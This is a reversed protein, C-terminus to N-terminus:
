AQAPAAEKSKFILALAIGCIIFEATGYLFWGLALSYPVPMSAYTAYGAPLNILLSMYFGYRVGEMIGKGEYGKSFIFSFFFAFFIYAVFIVWMKMEEPSRWLDPTAEYVSMMLVNHILYDLIAVLIYVVVAGVLVKKNM